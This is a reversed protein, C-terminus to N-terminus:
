CVALLRFSGTGYEHCVLPGMVRAPSLASRHRWVGVRRGDLLVSSYPIGRDCRRCQGAGEQVCGSAGRLQPTQRARFSAGIAHQVQRTFWIDTGDSPVGSGAEVAEVAELLALAYMM